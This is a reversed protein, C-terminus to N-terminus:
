KMSFKPQSNIVQIESKNWPLAFVKYYQPDETALFQKAKIRIQKTTGNSTPCYYIYKMYIGDRFKLFRVGSINIETISANEPLFDNLEKLGRWSKKPRFPEGDYQSTVMGCSVWMGGNTINFEDLTEFMFMNDVGALIGELYSRKLWENQIQETTKNAFPVLGQTTNVNVTNYGFESWWVKKNLYSVIKQLKIRVEDQEPSCGQTWQSTLNEFTNGANCYHHVNIIDCAFQKDARNAKFWNDMRAICDFDLNPLGPMVMLMTPDATKIGAFPIKGEHGDYVASCYAAFEEPNLSTNDPRWWARDENGPEIFRVLDLGSLAKNKVGWREQTDVGLRDVPWSKRGYRAAIKFFDQAENTWNLPNTGDKNWKGLKVETWHELTEPVGARKLRWEPTQNITLIVQKGLQKREKLKPDLDVAQYIPDFWFGTERNMWNMNLYWREIDYFVLNSPVWPFSNANIKKM